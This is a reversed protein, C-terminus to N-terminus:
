CRVMLDGIDAPEEKNDKSKDMKEASKVLSTKAPVKIPALAALRTSLDQVEKKAVTSQLSTVAERMDQLQQVLLPSDRVPSPVSPGLSTPGGPSINVSKTLGEILAKKSMTKMKAKLEGRENELSEIDAQLHDGM